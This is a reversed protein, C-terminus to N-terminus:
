NKTHRWGNVHGLEHCLTDQYSTDNDTQFYADTQAYACPNPMYIADPNNTGKHKYCAVSMPIGCYINIQKPDVFHVIVSTDGRRDMPALLGNGLSPIHDFPKFPAANTVHPPPIKFQVSLPEDYWGGLYQVTSLRCVGIAMGGVFSKVTMGRM